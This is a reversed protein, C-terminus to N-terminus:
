KKCWIGCGLTCYKSLILWNNICDSHYGHGCIGVVTYSEIKDNSEANTSCTNLSNRCIPCESNILNYMKKTLLNIKTFKLDLYKHKISINEKNSVIGANKLSVIVKELIEKSINGFKGFSEIYIYDIFKDISQCITSEKGEQLLFDIIIAQIPLLTIKTDHSSMEIIGDFLFWNLSYTINNDIIKGKDPEQKFECLFILYEEIYSRFRSPLLIKDFRIYNDKLYDISNYSLILINISIDNFNKAYISKKKSSKLDELLLIIKNYGKNYESNSKKSFEKILEFEIDINNLIFNDKSMRKILLTYYQSFFLLYNRILNNKLLNSIYQKAKFIKKELILENISETFNIEINKINKIKGLIDITNQCIPGNNDNFNITCIISINNIYKYLEDKNINNDPNKWIYKEFYSNYDLCNLEVRKIFDYFVENHSNNYNNIDNITSIIYKIDLIINSWLIYYKINSFINLNFINNYEKCITELFVNLVKLRNHDNIVPVKITKVKSNQQHKNQYYNVFNFDSERINIFIPKIFKCFQKKYNLLKVLKIFDFYYLDNNYKKDMTFEEIISGINITIKNFSEIIIRNISM